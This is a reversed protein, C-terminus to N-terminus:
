AATFTECCAMATARDASIMSNACVTSCGQVGTTFGIQYVLMAVIVLPWSEAVGYTFYALAVLGLGGLYIRKIGFSDIMWGTFPSLLAAAAMGASNVLGLETASAGLALTYVSLYPLVMQYFFKDWSARIATVKWDHQQRAIFRISSSITRSAYGPLLLHCAM